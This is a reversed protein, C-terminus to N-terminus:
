ILSINTTPPKQIWKQDNKNGLPLRNRTRSCRGWGGASFARDGECVLTVSATSPEMTDLEWWLVELCIKAISPGSWQADQFYHAFGQIQSLSTHVALMSLPPCPQQIEQPSSSGCKTSAPNDGLASQKIGLYIAGALFQCSWTAIWWSPTCDGLCGSTHLM